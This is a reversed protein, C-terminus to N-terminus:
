SILLILYMNQSKIRESPRRYVVIAERLQKLQIFLTYTKADLFIM